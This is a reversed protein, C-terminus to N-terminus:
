VLEAVPWTGTRPPVVEHGSIEDHVVFGVGDANDNDLIDLGALFRGTPDHLGVLGDAEFREISHWETVLNSESVQFNAVCDQLISMINAADNRVDPLTAM